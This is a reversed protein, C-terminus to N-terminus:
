RKRPVRKNMGQARMKLRKALGELQEAAKEVAQPVGLQEVLSDALISLPDDGVLDRELNDFLSRLKRAYKISPIMPNRALRSGAESPQSLDMVELDESSINEAIIQDVVAEREEDTKLQELVERVKREPISHHDIKYLVQSSFQLINLLRRAYNRDIGMVKQVEDYAAQPWRALAQRFYEYEDQCEDPKRKVAGPDSKDAYALLINSVARAKGVITLSRMAVNEAIAEDAESLADKKAVVKAELVPAKRQYDEPHLVANLCWAWFRREGTVLRFRARSGISEFYGTAPKIQGQRYLLDALFMLDQFSRSPRASESAYWSTIAERWDMRGTYFLERLELPLEARPQFRNPLVDELAIYQIAVRGMRPQEKGDASPNAHSDIDDFNSQADWDQIPMKKPM